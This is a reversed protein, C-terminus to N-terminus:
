LRAMAHQSRAWRWIMLPSSPWATPRSSRPSASHRSHFRVKKESREVRSGPSRRRARPASQRPCGTAPARASRWELSHSITAVAARGPTDPRLTRARRGARPRERIRSALGSGQGRARDVRSRPTPGGGGRRPRRGGRDGPFAAAAVVTVREREGLLEPHAGEDGVAVEAEALEVPAGALALLGRASAVAVVIYRSMPM